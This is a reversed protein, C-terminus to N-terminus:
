LKVAATGVGINSDIAFGQSDSCHWIIGPTVVPTMDNQVALSSVKAGVAQQGSPTPGVASSVAAPLRAIDFRETM